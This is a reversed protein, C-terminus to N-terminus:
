AFEAKEKEEKAIYRSLVCETERLLFLVTKLKRLGSISTDYERHLLLEELETYLKVLKKYDATKYKSQNSVLSIYSGAETLRAQLLKNMPLFYSYKQTRVIRVYQNFKM